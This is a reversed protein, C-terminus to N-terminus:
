SAPCLDSDVLLCKTNVDTSTSTTECNVCSGNVKDCDSWQTFCTDPTNAEYDVRGSAQGTNVHKEDQGTWVVKSYKQSTPTEKKCTTLNATKCTTTRVTCTECDGGGTIAHLQEFSLPQPQGSALQTSITMALVVLAAGSVVNFLNFNWNRINM